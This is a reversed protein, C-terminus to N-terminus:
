QAESLSLGYQQIRRTYSYLLAIERWATALGFREAHLKVRVTRKGVELLGWKPRHKRVLETTLVGPTAMYFRYRGIGRHWNKATRGPKKRDAYFDSLSAKCEILYSLAQRNNPACWGVADPVEDARSVFETLVVGCKATNKLWRAARAVLEAHTMDHVGIM